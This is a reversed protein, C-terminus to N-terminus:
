WIKMKEDWGLKGVWEWGNGKRTDGPSDGMPACRGGEGAAPRPTCLQREGAPRSGARRSGSGADTPTNQHTGRTKPPPFGFIGGMKKKNFNLFHKGLFSSKFFFTPLGGFRRNSTLVGIALAIQHFFFKWITTRVKSINTRFNTSLRAPEFPQGNKSTSSAELNKAESSYGCRIPNSTKRIIMWVSNHLDMIPFHM